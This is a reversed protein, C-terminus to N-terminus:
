KKFFNVSKLLRKPLDNQKTIFYNDPFQSSHVFYSISDKKYFDLSVTQQGNSEINLSYLAGDSPKDNDEFSSNRVNSVSNLYNDIVNQKITDSNNVLWLMSDKKSIVFGTDAPYKFTIKSLKNKDFKLLQNNRFQNFDRNLMMPLFGDVLFSKEDDALRVYTNGSINNRAYPNSNNQHYTFKGVYLSKILHDSNDFINLKTALSDTLEFEKWKDQNLGVVNEVKLQSFVKFLENVMENSAKDQKNAQKVFWVGDKKFLKIADKEAKPQISFSAIQTTDIKLVDTNFNSEPKAVFVYKTLVYILVLVSFIIIYITNKKNM